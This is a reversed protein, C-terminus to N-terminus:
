GSTMGKDCGIEAAASIELSATDDTSVDERLVLVFRMTSQPVLSGANIAGSAFTMVPTIVISIVVFIV